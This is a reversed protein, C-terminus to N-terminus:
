TRKVTGEVYIDATQALHHDSFHKGNKDPEDNNFRKALCRVRDNKRFQTPMRATTTTTPTLSFSACKLSAFAGGFFFGSGRRATVLTHTSPLAPPSSQPKKLETECLRM